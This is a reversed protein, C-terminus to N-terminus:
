QRPIVSLRFGTCGHVPDTVTKVRLTVPLCHNDESLLNLDAREVARSERAAALTSHFSELSDPAVRAEFPQDVLLSPPIGLVESIQESVFGTQGKEDLEAILGGALAILDRTRHGSDELAQRLISKEVELNKRRTDLRAQQDNSLALRRQYFRRALLTMALLSSAAVAFGAGALWLQRVTRANAQQYLERTPFTTIMWHRNGAAVESRLAREAVVAGEAPSVYLPIKNHQNLDHVTFRIRPDQYAGFLGGLWHSPAMAISVVDERNIPVFIRLSHGNVGGSEVTSLPTTTVMQQVLANELDRRWQPVSTALLGPGIGSGSDEMDSRATSWRVVLYDDRAEIPSGTMLQQWQRFQMPQGLEESIRQEVQLRQSGPVRRILEVGLLDPHQSLFANAQQRFQMPTDIRSAAMRRASEVLLSFQAEFRAAHGLQRTTLLQTTLSRGETSATQALWATAIVIVVLVLLPLGPLLLLRRLSRSGQQLARPM